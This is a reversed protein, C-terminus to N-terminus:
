TRRRRAPCAAARQVAADVVDVQPDAAQGLVVDGPPLTPGVTRARDDGVLELAQAVAVAEPVCFVNEPASRVIVALVGRQGVDDAAVRGIVFRCSLTKKKWVDIAPCTKASALPSPVRVRALVADGATRRAAPRPRRRRPWSASARPRRSDSRRARGRSTCREPRGRRGAGLLGRCRRGDADRTSPMVPTSRPRPMFAMALVPSPKGNTSGSPEFFTHIAPRRKANAHRRAFALRPGFGGSRVNSEQCGAAQAYM